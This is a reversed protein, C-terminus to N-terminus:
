GTPKKFEIAYDLQDVSVVYNGDHGLNVNRGDVHDVGGCAYQCQPLRLMIKFLQSAILKAM